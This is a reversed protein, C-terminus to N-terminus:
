SEEPTAPEDGPETNAPTTGDEPEQPQDKQKRSPRDTRKWLEASLGTADPGTAEIEDGHEVGQLGLTPLDVPSDGLYRFKM